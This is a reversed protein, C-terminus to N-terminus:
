KAVLRKKRLTETTIGLLAALQTPRDEIKEARAIVKREFERVQDKLPKIKM